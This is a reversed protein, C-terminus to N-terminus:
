LGHLFQQENGAVIPAAVDVHIGLVVGGSGHARTMDSHAAYGLLNGEKQIVTRVSMLKSDTKNILLTLLHGVKKEEGLMIFLQTKM